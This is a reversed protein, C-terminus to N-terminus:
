QRESKKPETEEVKGEFTIPKGASGKLRDRQARAARVRAEALQVTAEAQEISSASQQVNANRSALAAKAAELMAKAAELQELSEDLLKEDISKAQALETMRQYQKDRYDCTAQARVVEAKAQAVDAVAAEYSARSVHLNAAANQQEAVAQEIAAEAAAELEARQRAIGELKAKARKLEIAAHRHDNERSSLGEETIAGQERLKQVKKLAKEAELYDEEAAQVDLEALRERTEIDFDALPSPLREGPAAKAPEFAPSANTLIPKAEITAGGPYLQGGGGEYVPKRITVTKGDVVAQEEVYRTPPVPPQTAKVPVRRRISKIEGNEVRQVLEERYSDSAGESSILESLRTDIILEKHQERDNMARGIADLRRQLERLEAHQLEQRAEFTQEVLTRLKKRQDDNWKRVSGDGLHPVANEFFEAERKYAQDYQERAADFSLGSSRFREEPAPQGLSLNTRAMVAVTILCLLIRAQRM